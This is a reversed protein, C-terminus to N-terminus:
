MSPEVVAIENSNCTRLSVLFQKYTQVYYLIKINAMTEAENSAMM